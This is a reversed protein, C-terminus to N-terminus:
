NKKPVYPHDRKRLVQASEIKDGQEIALAVDLGKAVRGFVTHGSPGRPGQPNPNLHATPLHTLFFQSGGTDKGAHAMSISGQFHMRAGAAYCECPITYGPGGSGDNNPDEDLTNPDGGQAMFTPIVRHFAIGDYFKKEVLSIFNAVTNPAENEFLELEIDGGSTRLLVRPLDNAKEERVRIQQETKWLEAYRACDGVYREGLQQFVEGGEARASELLTGAKEFDHVAFHSVGGLNLAEADKPNGALIADAVAAAREYQNKQFYGGLLIPGAQAHSPDKAFVAEAAKFLAPEIEQQAEDVLARFEAQIEKQRAAGATQFEKRLQTLKTFVENQRALVQALQEAPDSATKAAANQAGELGARGDGLAGWLSAALFCWALPRAVSRM